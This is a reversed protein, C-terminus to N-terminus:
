NWVMDTVDAEGTVDKPAEKAKIRELALNHKYLILDKEQQHQLCSLKVKNIFLQKDRYVTVFESISNAISQM